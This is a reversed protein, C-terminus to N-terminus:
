NSNSHFNSGGGGGIMPMRQQKFGRFAAELKKSMEDLQSPHDKHAEYEGFEGAGEALELLESLNTRM